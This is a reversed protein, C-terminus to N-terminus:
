SIYANWPWRKSILVCECVYTYVSEDQGGDQELNRCCGRSDRAYFKIYLMAYAINYIKIEELPFFSIYIGLQRWSTLFQIELQMNFAHLLAQGPYSNWLYGIFFLCLPFASICGM